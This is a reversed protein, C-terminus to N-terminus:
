KAGASFSKLSIPFAICDTPTSILGTSDSRTPVSNFLDPRNVFKVLRLTNAQNPGEM